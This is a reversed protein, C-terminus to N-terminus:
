NLFTDLAEVIREGADGTGFPNTIDAITDAWSGPQAAEELMARFKDADGDVLRAAGSEVAEPRETNQRLILLPVGLSPAEEQVGGSDSCLLWARSMLYTFDPYDLPPLLHIRERGAFVEETAARVHPNPHIPFALVTDENEAVFDRLVELNASMVDGFSERRHTTLVILRKGAADQALRKISPSPELKDVVWRLSDVVPNGTLFVRERDVGEDLLVQENRPTAAFHLDALRTILRRNMEEPFPNRPDATRLGAEVHGVAVGRYFAGLAGAMATTTDGQVLVIDPQIQDFLPDLSELLRHAVDLPTQGPRMLKLDRDVDIEFLRVLGDVLDTHQGTRLVVSSFRDSRRALARLVPNLKIVEPRTGLLTLIVQKSNSM